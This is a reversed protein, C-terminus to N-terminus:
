GAEALETGKPEPEPPTAGTGFIRDYEDMLAQVRPDPTDKHLRRSLARERDAALEAELYRLRLGWTDEPKCENLLTSAGLWVCARIMQARSGFMGALPGAGLAGEFQEVWDRDINVALSSSVQPDLKVYAAHDHENRAALTPMTGINEGDDKWQKLDDFSPRTQRPRAM